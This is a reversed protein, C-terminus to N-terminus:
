NRGVAEVLPHSVALRLLGVTELHAVALQECESAQPISPSVPLAVHDLTASDERGRRIGEQGVNVVPHRYNQTWIM